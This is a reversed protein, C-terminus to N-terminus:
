NFQKYSFDERNPCGCNASYAVEQGAINDGAVWTGNIWLNFGDDFLVEARLASWQAPDTINFTKRFYISTYGPTNPPNAFDTLPTGMALTQDSGIPGNGNLWSDNETFTVGRWASTPSSAESTGKRYHWNQASNIFTTTTAATSVTPLASRWNGGLGNDFDPNILQISNGPADGVTPWPFGAGYDVRELKGGSANRLTITEGNNSLSGTFTGYPVANFKTQFAAANETLVLYSNPALAAGAPFTYNVGASFFANSLSVAVPSPNYLEIFEVQETKIDPDYHIENIIVQSRVNAAGPTPAAYYRLPNPTTAPDPGFSIDEEQAGFVLQSEITTGDPNVLSLTEGNRDLNFNTHLPSGAIARDKDSAFVVLYGNAPVSVNPFQWKNLNAPDDTLYFGALSQPSATSNRLEIWDSHAADEDTIGSVNVALLENIAVNALLLRPELADVAARLTRKACRNASRVRGFHSRRM